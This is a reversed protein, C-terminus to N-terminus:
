EVPGEVHRHASVRIYGAIMTVATLLAPAALLAEEVPIGAVHALVNDVVRAIFEREVPGQGALAGLYRYYVPGWLLYLSLEIDLGRPGGAVVAHSQAVEGVEHARRPQARGHDAAGEYELVDVM